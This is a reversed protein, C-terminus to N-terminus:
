SAKPRGDTADRTASERQASTRAASRCSPESSTTTRWVKRSTGPVGSTVGLRRATEAGGGGSEQSRSASVQHATVYLCRGRSRGRHLAFSSRNASDTGEPLLFSSSSPDGDSDVAVGSMSEADTRDPATDSSTTSGRGLRECSIGSVEGVNQPTLSKRWDAKADVLLLSQDCICPPTCVCTAVQETGRSAWPKGVDIPEM